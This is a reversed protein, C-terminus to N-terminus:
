AVHVTLLTRTSTVAFLIDIVYVYAYSSEHVITNYTVDNTHILIVIVGRQLYLITITCVICLLNRIAIDDDEVNVYVNQAHVNYLSGPIIDLRKTRKSNTSRFHLMGRKVNLVVFLLLLLTVLLLLLLPM